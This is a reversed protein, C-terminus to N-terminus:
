LIGLLGGLLTLGLQIIILQVDGLLVVIAAQLGPLLVGVVQIVTIVVTGVLQGVQFLLARIAAGAAIPHASLLSLVVGIATLILHVLESVIIALDHLAVIATGDVTALVIAAEQGVLLKVDAIVEDLIVTISGVIPSIRAETLDNPGLGQLEQTLPTLSTTAGAFIQPISQPQDRKVLEATNTNVTPVAIASIAGLAFTAFTAIHKFLM